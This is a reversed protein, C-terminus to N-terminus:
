FIDCNEWSVQIICLSDIWMYRIKLVFCLVMAERYRQPLEYLQFGKLRSELNTSLTKMTSMSTRGWQHSLCAYRHETLGSPTGMPKRFDAALVLRPSELFQLDILRTPLFHEPRSSTPPCRPIHNLSCVDLLSDGRGAGAPFTFTVFDNLNQNFSPNLDLKQFARNEGM